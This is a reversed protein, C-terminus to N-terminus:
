VGLSCVFAGNVCKCQRNPPAVPAGDGAGGNGGFGPFPREPAFGSAGGSGVTGGPCAPDQLQCIYETSDSRCLCNNFYNYRCV